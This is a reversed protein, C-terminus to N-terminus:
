VCSHMRAEALRGWVLTLNLTQMQCTQYLVSAALGRKAARAM